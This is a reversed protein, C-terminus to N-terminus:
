APGEAFSAKEFEKRSKLILILAVLALVSGLGFLGFSGLAAIAGYSATKFNRSLFCSISALLAFISCVLFFLFGLFFVTSVKLDNDEESTEDVTQEEGKPPLSIILEAPLQGKRDDVDTKFTTTGYDPHSVKVSISKGASINFFWFKGESTTQYTEDSGLLEVTADEVVDQDEYYVTGTITVLNKPEDDADQDLGFALTAFANALGLFFVFLLLLAAMGVKSRTQERLNAPLMSEKIDHLEFDLFSLAVNGPLALLGSKGKPKGVKPGEKGEYEMEQPPDPQHTLPEETKESGFDSYFYDACEFSFEHQCLPCLTLIERKRPVPLEVEFDFECEPCIAKQKGDKVPSSEDPAPGPVEDLREHSEEDGSDEEDERSGEEQRDEWSGYDEDKSFGSEDGEGPSEEKSSHSGADDEDWAQQSDEEPHPLEENYVMEQEDQSIPPLIMEEKSEEEVWDKRQFSFKTHCRPCITKGTKKKKKPLDLKFEKSCSPCSLKQISDKPLPEGKKKGDEKEPEQDGPEPPAAELKVKEETEQSPVKKQPEGAGPEPVKGPDYSFRASCRPCRVIQSLTRSFLTFRIEEQCRECPITREEM